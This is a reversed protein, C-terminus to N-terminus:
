GCCTTLSKPSFAPSSPARRVCCSQTSLPRSVTILPVNGVKEICNHLKITSKPHLTLFCTTSLNTNTDLHLHQPFYGPSVRPDITGLSIYMQIRFQYKTRCCSQENQRTSITSKCTTSHQVPQYHPARQKQSM